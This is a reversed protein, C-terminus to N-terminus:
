RAIDCLIDRVVRGDDLNPGFCISKGASRFVGYRCKAPDHKDPM